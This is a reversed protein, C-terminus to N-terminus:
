TSSVAMTKRRRALFTVIGLGAAFLPLAAPISAAWTEVFSISGGGSSSRQFTFFNTEEIIEFTASTAGHVASVPFPGQWLAPDGPPTLVNWALFFSAHAVM